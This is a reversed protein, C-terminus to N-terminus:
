HRRHRHARARATGARAPIRRHAHRHAAARRARRRVRGRDRRRRAGADGAGRRDGRALLTVVDRTSTSAAACSRCCRRTSTPWRPACRPCCAAALHAAADPRATAGLAARRARPHARHRRHRAAHERLGRLARRDILAGLATTARACCRTIPSRAISGAVCSGRAWRRHRVLRDGGLLTADANGTLSRMSSSTAARRRCRTILADTREEVACAASTRCPPNRRTACTSCCRARPASRWRCSTPASVRAPRAHRAPRHAPALREGARLALAAASRLATGNRALDADVRRGRVVLLEAPKLRELEAALAAADQPSCCRSAARPSIWGPWASASATARARGRAANTRAGRAAGRRDGHRPHRHAGGAREVPGKSKAPDGLQECIAVARARACSAERPLREVRPVARRGDPDAAGASSGRQTLTIDLLTAARRADDYFLEYFDGM